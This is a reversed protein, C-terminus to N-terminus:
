SVLLCYPKDAHICQGNKTPLGSVPLLKVLGRVFMLDFAPIMYQLMHILYM